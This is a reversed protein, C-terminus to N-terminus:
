FVEISPNGNGTSNGSRRIAQLMEQQKDEPLLTAAQVALGLAQATSQQSAQTQGQTAAQVGFITGVLTGVLTTVPGIAAAVDAATRFFLLALGLAAIVIVFGLAVLDRGM